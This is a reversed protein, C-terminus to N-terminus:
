ERAIDDERLRFEIETLTFLDKFYQHIENAKDSFRNKEYARSQIVKTTYINCINNDWSLDTRRHSTYIVYVIYSCYREWKTKMLVTM